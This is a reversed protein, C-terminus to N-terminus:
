HTPISERQSKIRHLQETKLNLVTLTRTRSLIEGIDQTSQFFKDQSPTKSTSSTIFRLRPTPTSCEPCNDMVKAYIARCSECIHLPQRKLAEPIGGLHVALLNQM